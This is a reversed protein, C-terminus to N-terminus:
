RANLREEAKILFPCSEYAPEFRGCEKYVYEGRREFMCMYGREDLFRRYYSCQRCRM